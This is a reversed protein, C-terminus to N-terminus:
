FVAYLAFVGSFEAAAGLASSVALNQVPPYLYEAVNNKEARVPFRMNHVCQVGYRACLLVPCM